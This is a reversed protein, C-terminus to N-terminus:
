KLDKVNHVDSGRVFKIGKNEGIRIWSKPPLNYKENLEILINRKNAISFINEVEEDSLSIDKNRFFLGPHAWIDVRPNSLATKLADVYKDKNVPFSHFAMLVIESQRLVDESVDLSGDALVKAECGTLIILEPYNERATIIEEVLELYNYTLERGVHETFAILPIRLEVARKCYEEVSNEGDVYDTHVHWEGRLLYEEYKLWNKYLLINEAKLM